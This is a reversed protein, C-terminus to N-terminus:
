KKLNFMLIGASVSANLSEVNNQMPIAVTEFCIKVLEDSVGNGENGICIGFRNFNNSYSSIDKGEMDACLIKFDKKIALEIFKDKSISEFDVDFIYGMSSRITKYLYPYVSNIAYIKNYGFARASRIIAGVNNPDQLNDLVLFNSNEYNNKNTLKYIAYIASPNSAQSLDECIQKSIYYINGTFNQLLKDYKSAYDNNILITTIDNIREFIIKENEIVCENYLQSYKKTQLKKIHSILKNSKSEIVM